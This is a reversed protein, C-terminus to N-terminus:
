CIFGNFGNCGFSTGYSSQPFVTSGFSTSPVTFGSNFTSPIISTGFGSSGFGISNFSTGANLPVLSGINVYGPHNLTSRFGAPIATGFSSSVTSPFTSFSSSVTSPFSFSSGSFSQTPFGFSSTTGFNSGIFSGRTSAPVLTGVNIYGPFASGTGFFGGSIGPNHASAVSAGLALVSAIAATKLFTGM